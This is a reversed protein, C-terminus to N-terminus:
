QTTRRSSRSRARRPYLAAEADTRQAAELFREFGGRQALEELVEDVPPPSHPRHHAGRRQQGPIAQSSRRKAERVRRAIKESAATSENDNM